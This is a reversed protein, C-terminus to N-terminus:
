WSHDNYSNNPATKKEMRIEKIKKMNPTDIKMRYSFKELINKSDFIYEKYHLSIDNISDFEFHNNLFDEKIKEFDHRTNTSITDVGALEEIKYRRNEIFDYMALEINSIGIGKQGMMKKVFAEKKSEETFDIYIDDEKELGYYDFIMNLDELFYREIKEKSSIYNFLTKIEDKEDEDSVLDILEKKIKKLNAQISQYNKLELGDEKNVHIYMSSNRPSKILKLYDELPNFYRSINLISEPYYVEFENKNISRLEINYRRIFPKSQNDKFKFTEEKSVKYEIIEDIELEPILMQFDNNEEM